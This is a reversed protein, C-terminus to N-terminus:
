HKARPAAGPARPAAAPDDDLLHGEGLAWVAAQTRNHVAIKRLITKVCGKVTSESIGLANAIVKNSEGHALRRLTDSERPSLGTDPAEDRLLPNVGQRAIYDGLLGSLVKEGAVALELSQVLADGSIDDTLFGDAGAQMARVFLELRLDNVMVIIKADPRRARTALIWDICSGTASYDRYLFITPGERPPDLPGLPMQADDTELIFRTGAFLRELSEHWLKGSNVPIVHCATM